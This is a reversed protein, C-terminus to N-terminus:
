ILLNQHMKAAILSHTHGPYLWYNGMPKTYTRIGRTIRSALPVPLKVWGSDGTAEGSITTNVFVLFQEGLVVRRQSTMFCCPRQCSLLVDRSTAILCRCESSRTCRRRVVLHLLQFRRRGRFCAPAARWRLVDFCMKVGTRLSM